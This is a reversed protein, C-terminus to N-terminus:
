YDANYSYGLHLNLYKLLSNQFLCGKRQKNMEINQIRGHELQLCKDCLYM